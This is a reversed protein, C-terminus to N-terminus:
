AVSASSSCVPTCASANCVWLGSSHCALWDTGSEGWHRPPPLRAQYCHSYSIYANYHAGKILSEKIRKRETFIKSHASCNNCCKVFKHRKRIVLINRRAQFRT